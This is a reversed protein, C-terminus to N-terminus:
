QQTLVAPLTLPLRESDEASSLFSRLLSRMQPMQLDLHTRPHCLLCGACGCTM